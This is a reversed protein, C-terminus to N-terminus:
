VGLEKKINNFGRKISEIVKDDAYIFETRGSFKLESPFTFSEFHNRIPDEFKERASKRDMPLIPARIGYLHYGDNFYENNANRGRFSKNTTIGIKILMQGLYECLVAYLVTHGKRVYSDRDKNTYEVMVM